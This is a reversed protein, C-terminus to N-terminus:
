WVVLVKVLPGVVTLAGRWLDVVEAEIMSSTAFLAVAAGMHFSLAVIWRHSVFSYCHRVYSVM